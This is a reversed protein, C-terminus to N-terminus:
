GVRHAQFSNSFSSSALSKAIDGDWVTPKSSVKTANKVPKNQADGDWVTPESSLQMYKLIVTDGQTAMGCPPSLVFLRVMNENQALADGDWM